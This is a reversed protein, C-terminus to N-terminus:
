SLASRDLLEPLKDQIDLCGTNTSCKQQGDTILIIVGGQSGVLLGPWNLAYELGCGICTQM